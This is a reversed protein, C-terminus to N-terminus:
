PGKGLPECVSFRSPMVACSSSARCTRGKRISFLLHRIEKPFDRSEHALACGLPFSELRPLAKFFRATLRDAAEPAHEALSATLRDLDNFAAKTLEVRFSM